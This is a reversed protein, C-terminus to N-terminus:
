LREVEIGAAEDKRISLHYGRVKIDIPDGLPAVREVEVLAGLTVGMDAIRKGAEGRLRMKSVKGREGPKLDKLEVPMKGEGKTSARRRRVDELCLTLCKECSELERGHECLHQFGRVWKAGRPCTEVFESFCILKEVVQRPVSHEMKCAVEGATGEDVALVKVFFDRLAEHRRVVDKAARTGAPTLTIVSHPEYNVMDREALQRLAETVSPSKVNLREAIDKTRAAANESVIHLIAELYDELSASLAAADAM